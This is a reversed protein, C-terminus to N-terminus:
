RREVCVGNIEGSLVGVEWWEKTSVPESVITEDDSDIAHVLYALAAKRREKKGKKAKDRKEKDRKEKDRQEKEDGSDNAEEKEQKKPKNCDRAFHGKAGCNYCDINKVYDAKRDTDAVFARRDSGQTQEKSETGLVAEREQALVLLQEVKYTNGQIATMKDAYLDAVWTRWLTLTQIQGLATLVIMAEPFIEDRKPQEHLILM